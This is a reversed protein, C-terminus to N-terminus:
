YGWGKRRMKTRIERQKKHHKIADRAVSKNVTITIPKTGIYAKYGSGFKKIRYGM